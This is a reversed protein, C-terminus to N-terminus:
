GNDLGCQALLYIKNNELVSDCIYKLVKWLTLLIGSIMGDYWFNNFDSFNQFTTERKVPNGLYRESFMFLKIVWSQLQIIDLNSSKYKQSFRIPDFSLCSSEYSQLSM